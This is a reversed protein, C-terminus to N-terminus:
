HILNGLIEVMKRLLDRELPKQGAGIVVQEKGKLIM